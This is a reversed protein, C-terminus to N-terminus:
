CSPNTCRLTQRNFNANWKVNFGDRHRWVIEFTINKKRTLKSNLDGAQWQRRELWGSLDGKVQQSLFDFFQLITSKGSGNMGVLCNFHTLPIVFNVLSKFNNVEITEIQLENVTTTKSM